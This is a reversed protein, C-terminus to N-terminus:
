PEIYGAAESFQLRVFRRSCLQRLHRPKFRVLNRTLGTLETGQDPVGRIRARRVKRTQVGPIIFSAHRPLYRRRACRAVELKAHAM